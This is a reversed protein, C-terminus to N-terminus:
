AVVIEQMVMDTDIRTTTADTTIEIDRQGMLNDNINVCYRFFDIILESDAVPLTSNEAFFKDLRKYEAFYCKHLGETLYFYIGRTKWNGNRKM